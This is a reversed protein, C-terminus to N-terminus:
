RVDLKTARYVVSKIASNLGPVDGGGTLNWNKKGVRSASREKCSDRKWSQPGWTYDLWRWRAIRQM